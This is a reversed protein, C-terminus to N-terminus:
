WFSFLFLRVHPKLFMKKKKMLFNVDDLFTGTPLIPCLLHIELAGAYTMCFCTKHFNDARIM